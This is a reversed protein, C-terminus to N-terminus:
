LNSLELKASRLYLLDMQIQNNGLSEYICIINWEFIVTAQSNMVRYLHKNFIILIRM